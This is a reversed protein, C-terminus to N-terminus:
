PALVAVAWEILAIAAVAFGGAVIAIALRERLSLKSSDNM